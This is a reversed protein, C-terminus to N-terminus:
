AVAGRDRAGADAVDGPDFGVGYVADSRRREKYTTRGVVGKADGSGTRRNGSVDGSSGRTGRNGDERDVGAVKHGQRSSSTARERRVSIGPGHDDTSVGPAQRDRRAGEDGNSGSRRANSGAHIGWRLLYVEAIRACCENGELVLHELLENAERRRRRNNRGIRILSTALVIYGLIAAIGHSPRPDELPMGDIAILSSTVFALCFLFVSVERAQRAVMDSLYLHLIMYISLAVTANVIHWEAMWLVISWLFSEM